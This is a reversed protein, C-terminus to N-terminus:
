CICYFMYMYVLVCVCVCMYIYICLYMYVYKYIYICMSVYMCVYMYIYIYVHICVNHIRFRRIVKWHTWDTTHGVKKVMGALPIMVDWSTQRPGEWEFAWSPTQMREVHWYSFVAQPSRPKGDTHGKRHIDPHSLLLRDRNMPTSM